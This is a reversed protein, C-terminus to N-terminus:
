LDHGVEAQSKQRAVRIGAKVPVLCAQQHAVGDIEVLCEFCMGMMCYPARNGGSVPAPRLHAMGQALLAAAVTDGELAEIELGEFEFRVPRRLLNPLRRFM